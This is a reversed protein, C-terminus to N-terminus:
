AGRRDDIARRRFGYAWVLNGILCAPSVVLFRLLQSFSGRALRAAIIPIIVVPTVFALTPVRLFPLAWWRRLVRHKAASAHGMARNYRFFYPWDVTKLHNVTITPDYLLDFGRRQLENSFLVDEGLTQDPFAVLRLPEARYASNCGLLYGHNKRPAGGRPFHTLFELVYLAFSSLNNGNHMAISGGAAGVSADAFLREFREVWDPPVICDQDTVFVLRGRAAGFGRNRAGGATLREPSQILTVGPFRERVIDATGDGSSEVVIIECRRGNAAQEVSQLCDAITSAGNYAAIVVSIDVDAAPAAQAPARDPSM